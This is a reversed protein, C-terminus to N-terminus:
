ILLFSLFILSLLISPNPQCKLLLSPASQRLKPCVPLGLVETPLFHRSIMHTPTDAHLFIVPFWVSLLVFSARRSKILNFSASLRLVLCHPLFNCTTHTHLSPACGESFCFKHSFSPCLHAPLSPSLTAPIPLSLQWDEGGGTRGAQRRLQAPLAVSQYLSIVLAWGSTAQISVNMVETRSVLPTAAQLRLWTQRIQSASCNLRPSSPSIKFSSLQKTDKHNWM